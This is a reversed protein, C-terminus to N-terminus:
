YINSFVSSTILLPCDLSVQLMPYVLCLVIVFCFFGVVSFVLAILLGSRMLFQPQIGTSKFPSCIMDRLLYGGNTEYLLSTNSVVIHLFFFVFLMLFPGNFLCNPTIAVSLMVVRFWSRSSMYYSLINSAVIHLCVRVVYM